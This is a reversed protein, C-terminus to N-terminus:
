LGIEKLRKDLDKQEEEDISDWYDMLMNFGLEYKNVKM